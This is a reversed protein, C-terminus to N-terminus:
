LLLGALDRINDTKPKKTKAKAIAKPGILFIKPNAGREIANKNLANNIVRNYKTVM